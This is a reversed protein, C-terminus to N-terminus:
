GAGGPAQFSIEQAASHAVIFLLLARVVASFDVFQRSIFNKIWLKKYFFMM